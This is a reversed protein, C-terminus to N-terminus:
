PHLIPLLHLIQLEHFKEATMEWLKVVQKFNMPGPITEYEKVLHFGVKEMTKNPAPNLAYPQCFLKKLKLKNFYFPLTMKVFAVGLGQKRVPSNWIHLHMFAQEGFTTPNTNSHGIPVGDAEWIICYSIKEEIPTALQERLYEKFPGPPPIKSLDVGMGTLHGPPSNFWYHLISDIDQQDMERVSLNNEIM